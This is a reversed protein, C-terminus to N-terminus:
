KMRRVALRLAAFVVIAYAVIWGDNTIAWVGAMRWAANTTLDLLEGIDQVVGDTHLFSGGDSTSLAGAADGRENTALAQGPLTSLATFSGDSYLIPRPSGDPGVWRGVADGRSSMDALVVDGPPPPSLFRLTYETQADIHLAVSSLVLWLLHKLLAGVGYEEISTDLLIV